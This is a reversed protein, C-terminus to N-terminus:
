VGRGPYQDAYPGYYHQFDAGFAENNYSPIPPEASESPIGWTGPMAQGTMQWVSAWMAETQMPDVMAETQIPDFMATPDMGAMEPMSAPIEPLQWSPEPVQAGPNLLQRRQEVKDKVELQKNLPLNEILLEGKATLGGEPTLYKEAKIQLGSMLRCLHLELGRSYPELVNLFHLLDGSIRAAAMRRRTALAQDVRDQEQPTMKSYLGRGDKQLKGDYTVYNRFHPGGGCESLKLGRAYNDLSTLFREDVPVNEITRKLYFDSRSLLAQNFQEQDEPSLRSLLKKGDKHLRGDDSVYRRFVITESCDILRAGQAYNELGAMFNERFVPDIRSKQRAAIAQDLWEREEKTLQAYLSHGKSILTGDTRIYNSFKITSSCGRLDVGQAFAELGALFREKAPRPAAAPQPNSPALPLENEVIGELANPQPSQQVYEWDSGLSPPIQAPFNSDQYPQLQGPTPQSRWPESAPGGASTQGTEYSSYQGDQQHIQGHILDEMAMPQPTRLASEWDPGPSYPIQAQVNFDQYSQGPYNWSTGSAAVGGSTQGTEPQFTPQGGEQYTQNYYHFHDYANFNIRDM